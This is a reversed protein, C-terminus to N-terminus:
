RKGPSFCVRFSSELGAWILRESGLAAHGLNVTAAEAPDPDFLQRWCQSGLRVLPQLLIIESSPRSIFIAPRFQRIGGKGYVCKYKPKRARVITRLVQSHPNCDANKSHFVNDQANDNHHDAKGQEAISKV